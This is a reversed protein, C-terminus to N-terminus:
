IVEVFNDLSDWRSLIGDLTGCRNLHTPFADWSCPVITLNLRQFLFLVMQYIWM